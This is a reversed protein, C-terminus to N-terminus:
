SSKSWITEQWIKIKLYSHFSSVQFVQLHYADQLPIHKLFNGSFQLDNM